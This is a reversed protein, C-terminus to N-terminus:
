EIHNERMKLKPGKGTGTLPFEATFKFYEPIKFHTIKGKCFAIMEEGDASEGGKIKIWAM